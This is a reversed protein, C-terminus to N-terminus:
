PPVEVPHVSFDTWDWPGAYTGAAVWLEDGSSAHRLAEVITPFATAWSQGDTAPGTPNPHVFIVNSFACEVWLLFFLLFPLARFSVVSSRPHVRILSPSHCRNWAPTM